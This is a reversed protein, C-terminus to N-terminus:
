SCFSVTIRWASSLGANTIMGQPGLPLIWEKHSAFGAKAYYFCGGQIYLASLYNCSFAISRCHREIWGTFVETHFTRNCLTLFRYQEKKELAHGEDKAELYWVNGGNIKIKEAM